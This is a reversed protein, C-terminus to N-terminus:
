VKLDEDVKFKGLEMPFVDRTLTLLGIIFDTAEVYYPTDVNKRGVKM